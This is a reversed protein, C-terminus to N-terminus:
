REIQRSAAEKAAFLPPMVKVGKGPLFAHPCYVGIKFPECYWADDVHIGFTCGGLV